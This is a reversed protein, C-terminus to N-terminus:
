LLTMLFVFGLMVFIISDLRDLIGGHGPMINSYDKVGYHRKIISFFLDGLQGLISLMLTTLIIKFIGVEPNIFSIYIISSLIIGSILGGFSGEWTKKPSIKTLKNKGFAMGSFQAFMDNFISISFLFIFLLLGINRYVIFLSFSFGLFLLGGTLYFADVITYNNKNYYLLTGLFNFLFIGIIIKSNLIDIINSKGYNSLLIIFLLIYSIIEMFLPIKKLKIFERLGMLSLISVLIFFYTGGLYILPVTIILAIIASIIRQKM